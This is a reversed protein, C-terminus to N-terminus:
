AKQQNHEAKRGDHKLEVPDAPPEEMKEFEAPAQEREEGFYQHHQGTHQDDYKCMGIPIPFAPFAAAFLLFVPLLVFAAAPEASM